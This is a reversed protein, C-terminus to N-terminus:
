PSGRRRFFDWIRVVRPFRSPAIPFPPANASDPFHRRIRIEDAQSRSAASEALKGHRDYAAALELLTHMLVLDFDYRPWGSPGACYNAEELARTLAELESDNDRELRRRVAEIRWWWGYTARVGLAYNAELTERTRELFDWAQQLSKQGARTKSWALQCYAAVILLKAQGLEDAFTNDFSALGRKILKHAAGIRDMRFQQLAEHVVAGRWAIVSFAQATGTALAYSALAADDEGLLRQLSALRTYALWHDAEHNCRELVRQCAIKAGEWDGSEECDDAVCRLYLEEDFEGHSLRVMWQRAGQLVEDDDDEGPDWNEIAAKAEAILSQLSQPLEANASPAAM